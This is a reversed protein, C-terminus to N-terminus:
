RADELNARLIEAVSWAQAICGRPAHPPEADFIESVTGIGAESLHPVFAQLMERARAKGEEGHVRVYATVFPGILWSWVTGQHYADDRTKSDGEYRPRYRPDEQSLSRLGFPTYLKQEVVELVRRAKEGSLLPFPLSLAFIQNPRIAKDRHEGDIFDYLYGGEEYWFTQEFKEKVDRARKAFAGGRVQDGFRRALSGFITLANYWLANVEVAKGARPTVVRDGAKADM